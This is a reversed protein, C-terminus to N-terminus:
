FQGLCALVKRLNHRNHSIDAILMKGFFVETSPGNLKEEFLDEAESPDNERENDSESLGPATLLDLTETPHDNESESIEHIPATLKDLNAKIMKKYAKEERKTKKLKQEPTMGEARIKAREAAM